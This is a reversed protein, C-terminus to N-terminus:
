DTLRLVVDSVYSQMKLPQDSLSRCLAACATCEMKNGDEAAILLDACDGRRGGISLAKLDLCESRFEDACQSLLRDEISGRELNDLREGSRRVSAGPEGDPSEKSSVRRFWTQLSHPPGAYSGTRRNEPNREEGVPSGIRVARTAPIPPM